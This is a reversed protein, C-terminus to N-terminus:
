VIMQINADNCLDFDVYSVFVYAVIVSVM